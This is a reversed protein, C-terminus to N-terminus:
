NERGVGMGFEGSVNFLNMSLFSTQVLASIRLAAMLLQLCGILASGSSMTGCSSRKPHNRGRGREEQLMVEHVPHQRSSAAPGLLISLRRSLSCASRAQGRWRRRHGQQSLTPWSPLQQGHQAGPHEPAFLAPPHFCQHQWVSLQIVILHTFYASNVQREPLVCM